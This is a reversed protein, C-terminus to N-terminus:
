EVSQKNKELGSIHLKCTFEQKFIRVLFYTGILSLVSVIVFVGRFSIQEALVGGVTAAAAISFSTITDYVGWEYGARNKQSYRMFIVRWTPYTLAGALGYIVQIGYVFRMTHAFIYLLPVTSMIISGIILAYLERCNGRECDAWRGVGLQVIARVFLQVTLSLGIASITAGQIERVYFVVM